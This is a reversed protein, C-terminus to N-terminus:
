QAESLDMQDNCAVRDCKWKDYLMKARTFDDIKLYHEVQQQVETPLDTFVKVKEM